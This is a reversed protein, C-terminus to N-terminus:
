RKILKSNLFEEFLISKYTNGIPYTSSNITVTDNSISQICDKAVIYSKHIKIFKDQPLKSEIIKLTLYVTFRNKITHIIIYNQLAEIAIIDTTIIQEYIGNSKVFFYKNSDETFSNLNLFDQTKSVAKLFREFSIPKLLYDLINLEYGKIAYEQYASTIITSPLNNFTKLFDIGTMKPMHIDLFMLDIKTEKLIQIAEVPNEAEASFELFDIDNIYEIIGKRAFTEDDVVLCKIKKQTM